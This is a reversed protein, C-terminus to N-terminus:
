SRDPGSRCASRDVGVVQRLRRAGVDVQLVARDVPGVRHGAFARAADIVQPVGGDVATAAVEGGAVGVRQGVRQGAGQGIDGFGDSRGSARRGVRQLRHGAVVVLSVDGGVGSDLPGAVDLRIREVGGVPAILVVVAVQDALVWSSATVAPLRVM